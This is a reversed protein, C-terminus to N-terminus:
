EPRSPTAARGRRVRGHGHTGSGHGGGGDAPHGHDDPDEYRLSVFYWKGRYEYLGRTEGECYRHLADGLSEGEDVTVQETAWEDSRGEAAEALVRKLAPHADVFAPSLRCRTDTENGTAARARVRMGSEEGFPNPVSGLCGATALAAALGGGDRLLRRRSTGRM